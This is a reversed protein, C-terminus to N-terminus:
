KLSCGKDYAPSIGDCSKQADAKKVHKMPFVEDASGTDQCTCTYDKKCSSFAVVVFAALIFVSKKM